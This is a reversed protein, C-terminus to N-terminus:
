KWLELDIKEFDATNRTFSDLDVKSWKGALKELELNRKRRPSKQLHFAERLTTLVVSNLSTSSQKAKETLAKKLAADINRLTITKM